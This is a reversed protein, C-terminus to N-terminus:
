LHFISALVFSEFSVELSVQFVQWSKKLHREFMDTSDLFMSSTKRQIELAM